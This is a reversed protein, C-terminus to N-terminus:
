SGIKGTFVIIRVNEVLKEIVPEYYPSTFIKLLTRRPSPTLKGAFFLTIEDEVRSM